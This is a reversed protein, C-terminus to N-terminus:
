CAQPLSPILRRVWWTFLIKKTSYASSDKEMFSLSRFIYWLKLVNVLKLTKLINHSVHM